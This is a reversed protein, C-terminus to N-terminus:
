PKREAFLLHLISYIAILAFGIVILLSEHGRKLFPITLLPTGLQRKVLGITEWAVLLSTMLVVLRVTIRTIRRLSEPFHEHISLSLHGNDKAIVSAGIYTIFLSCLTVSEWVWPVLGGKRLLFRLGVQLLIFCVAVILFSTAINELYRNVTDFIKTIVQLVSQCFTALRM